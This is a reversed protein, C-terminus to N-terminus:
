FAIHTILLFAVGAVLLLSDSWRWALPIDISFNGSFGRSILAQYLRENREFIRTMFVASLRGMMILKSALPLKIYRSQFAIHLRHLEHSLIYVFRYIFFTVAVVWDPVKLKELSKILHTFPTSTVFILGAAVIYLSRIQFELIRLWESANIDWSGIGSYTQLGGSTFSVWQVLSIIFIMPYIKSITRLIQAYPLGATFIVTLLIIALVALLVPQNISSTFLIVCFILFLIFKARPDIRGICQHNIAKKTFILDFM